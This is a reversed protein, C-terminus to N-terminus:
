KAPEEGRVRKLDEHIRKLAETAEHRVLEDRDQCAAELAPIAEEADPGIRGLAYAASQRTALDAERLARLLLPVAPKGCGGLVDLALAREPALCRPLWLYFRVKALTAAPGGLEKVVHNAYGGCPAGHERYGVLATRVQCRWSVASATPWSIGAAAIIAATWALMPRWTRPPSAGGEGGSPSPRPSPHEGGDIM